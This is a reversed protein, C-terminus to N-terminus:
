NEQQKENIGEAFFIVDFTFYKKCIHCHHKNQESPDIKRLELEYRYGCKPCTLDIFEGFKLNATTM